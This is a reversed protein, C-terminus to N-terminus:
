DKHTMSSVGLGIGAIAKPLPMVGNIPILRARSPEMRIAVACADISHFSELFAFSAASIIFSVAASKYSSPMISFTM